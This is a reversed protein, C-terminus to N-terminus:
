RPLHAAPREASKYGEKGRSALLNAGYLFGQATGLATNRVTVKRVELNGAHRMIGFLLSPLNWHEWVGAGSLNERWETASVDRELVAVRSM